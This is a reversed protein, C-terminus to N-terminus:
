AKGVLQELDWADALLQGGKANPHLHDGQHIGEAFYWGDERQDRVVAEADFLDANGRIWDNLQLRLDEMPREYKGMTRAVGLRPTITQMAVRVGREHLQDVISAVAEQFAKASIHGATEPTLYSVDNVGLGFIVTHLNPVELM